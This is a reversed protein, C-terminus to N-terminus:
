QQFWLVMDTFTKEKAFKVKPQSLDGRVAFGHPAGEFLNVLFWTKNATLVEIAKTRLEPVFLFDDPASAVLLPHAVKGYEEPTTFSPHAVAGLKFFGGEVLNDLVMPAGYCYGVGFIEKPSAGKTLNELFTKTFKKSGEVTHNKVWDQLEIGSDPNYPDNDFLDPVLVQAKLLEAFQDALLQTNILEPGYIDTLIVVVKDFGNDAGAVYSRVGAVTAIKGTSTGEHKFTTVCCQGLSM